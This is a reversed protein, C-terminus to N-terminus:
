VEQQLYQRSPPLQLRGELLDIAEEDTLTEALTNGEIATTALAGRVLFLDHLKRSTEPKLLTWALHDCKSRAEGIFLWVSYPARDLNLNFTLWPHTGLYTREATSM